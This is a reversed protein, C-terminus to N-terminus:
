GSDIGRVLIEKNSDIDFSYSFSDSGPIVVPESAILVADILLQIFPSVPSGESLDLYFYEVRIADGENVDISGAGNGYQELEMVENVFIRMNVDIFDAGTEWELLEWDITLIVPAPTYGVSVRYPYHWSEHLFTLNKATLSHSEELRVPLDLSGIIMPPEGDSFHFKFIFMGPNPFRERLGCSFDVRYKDGSKTFEKSILMQANPVASLVTWEADVYILGASLYTFGTVLHLPSFEIKCINNIRDKM